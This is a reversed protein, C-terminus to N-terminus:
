RSRYSSPNQLQTPQSILRLDQLPLNLKEAIEKKLLDLTDGEMVKTLIVDGGKGEVLDM